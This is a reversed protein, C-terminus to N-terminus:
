RCKDVFQQHVIRYIKKVFLVNDFQMIWKVPQGPLSCLTGKKVTAQATDSAIRQTNVKEQYPSIFFLFSFVRPGDKSQLQSFFIVRM